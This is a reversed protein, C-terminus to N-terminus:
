AASVHSRVTSRQNTWLNLEGNIYVPEADKDLMLTAAPEARLLVDPTYSQGVEVYIRTAETASVHLTALPVELVISDHVTLVPHCDYLPDGPRALECARCVATYAAAAADAALGSFLGNCADPFSIYARVRDSIFQRIAGLAWRDRDPFFNAVADFYAEPEWRAEWARMIEGARRDDILPDGDRREKNMTARLRRVSMVGWGGFNIRKSADRHLAYAKQKKNALMDEYSVGMLGCGVDCHVDRGTNLADALKHSAGLWIQAQAVTVLEHMAYDIDVFAYGPRAVFCNRMRGVKPLNQMQVGVYLKPIRTSCRGNELLNVFETQLPLGKSGEKLMTVKKITTDASTYLSYARLVPDGSDRTAEANLCVGEKPTKKVEIGAEACVREMRARARKTDKSGVKSPPVRKSKDDFDYDGRLLGHALLTHRAKEIEAEVESLYLDCTAGDTIVGRHVMKRRAFAYYAQRPGDNLLDAWHDEARHVQLTAKADLVAYTIADKPWLALPTDILESYRLRWTDASKDLTGFGHREYLAALSYSFKVKEDEAARFGELQGTGLDILRQRLQVDHVRGEEHARWIRPKLQPFARILVWQDFTGNAWTSECEDYVYTLFDEAETWHLIQPEFSDDCHTVCALRPAIDAGRSIPATETDVAFLKM